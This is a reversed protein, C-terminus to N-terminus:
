QSFRKRAESAQNSKPYLTWLQRTYYDREEINDLANEISAGLLLASPAMANTYFYRQMFGSASLYRGADFKLKAMSLLAQRQNASENLVSMYASEAQELDGTAEYCRAFALRTSLSALAPQAVNKQLVSLGTDPSDDKCLILAYDSVARINSSDLQVAKKLYTSAKSMNLQQAEVLGLGHYAKSSKPDVQVAKEFSERAVDLKGRQLYSQGLDIHAQVRKETPWATLEPPGETVCGGLLLVGILIVSHWIKNRM